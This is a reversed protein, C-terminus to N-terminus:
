ITKFVAACRAYASFDMLFFGNLFFNGQGVTETQPQTKIREILVVVKLRNFIPQIIEIHIKIFRCALCRQLPRLHAAVARPTRSPLKRAIPRSTQRFLPNQISVLKDLVTEMTKPAANRLVVKGGTM